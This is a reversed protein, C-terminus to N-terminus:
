IQDSKWFWLQGLIKGVLRWGVLSVLTLDPKALGTWNLAQTCYFDLVFRSQFGSPFYESLLYVVEAPVRNEKISTRWVAYWLRVHSDGPTPRKLGDPVRTISTTCLRRPLLFRLISPHMTVFIIAILCFLSKGKLDTCSTFWFPGM